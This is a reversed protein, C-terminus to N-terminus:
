AKDAKRQLKGCSKKNALSMKNVKGSEWNAVSRIGCPVAQAFAQQTMGLKTRLALVMSSTFREESM